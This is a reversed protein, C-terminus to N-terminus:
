GYLHTSQMLVLQFLTATLISADRAAIASGKPRRAARSSVLETEFNASIAGVCM